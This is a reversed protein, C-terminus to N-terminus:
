VREAFVRITQDRNDITIWFGDQRQTYCLEYSQVEPMDELIEELIKRDAEVSNVREEIAKKIESLNKIM